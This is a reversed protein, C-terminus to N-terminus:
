KCLELAMQILEAQTLSGDLNTLTYVKGDEQWQLIGPTQLQVNEDSGEVLSGDVVTVTTEAQYGDPYVATERQSDGDQVVAAGTREVAIAANTFYFKRGGVEAAATNGEALSCQAADIASLSVESDGKEYTCSLNSTLSDPTVSFTIGNEGSFVQGNETETASGEETTAQHELAAGAFAYGNSFKEPLTLKSGTDALAKQAESITDYTYTEDVWSLMVQSKFAAFATVSLAMVAVAAAAIVRKRFTTHKMSDETERDLSRRLVRTRMDEDMQVQAIAHKLAEPTM